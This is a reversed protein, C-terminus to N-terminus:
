RLLSLLRDAETGLLVVLPKPISGRLEPSPSLLEREIVQLNDVDILLAMAGREM